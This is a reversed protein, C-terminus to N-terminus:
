RINKIHILPPINEQSFEPNTGRWISGTSAEPMFSISKLSTSCQLLFWPFAPNALVEILYSTKLRDAWLLSLLCILGTQRSFAKEKRRSYITIPSFVPQILKKRKCIQRHQCCQLSFCQVGKGNEAPYLLPLKFPNTKTLTEKQANAFPTQEGLLPPMWGTGLLNSLHFKLRALVQWHVRAQMQVLCIQLGWLFNYFFRYIHQVNFSSCLMGRLTEM